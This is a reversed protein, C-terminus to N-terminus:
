GGICVVTLPTPSHLPQIHTKKLRVNITKGGSQAVDKGSVQFSGDKRCSYGILIQMGCHM